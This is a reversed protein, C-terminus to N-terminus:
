VIADRARCVATVFHCVLDYVRWSVLTAVIAAEAIPAFGAIYCPATCVAHWGGYVIPYGASEVPTIFAKIEDLVRRGLSSAVVSQETIARLGAVDSIAALRAYRRVDVVPDATGHVATAFYFASDSM